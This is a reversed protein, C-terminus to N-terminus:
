CCSNESSPFKSLDRADVDDLVAHRSLRAPKSKHFHGIIGFRGLRHGSEVPLFNDPAGQLHVFGCGSRFPATRALRCALRALGAPLALRLM